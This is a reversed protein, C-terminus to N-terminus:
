TSQPNRTPAVAETPEDPSKAKQPPHILLGVNEYGRGVFDRGGDCYFKRRLIEFAQNPQNPRIYNIGIPRAVLDAVQLGTLNTKKDAFVVDFPLNKNTANNGDCIRRFELELEADEKRGRCEVIVHTKLHDQAKEALFSRLADLCFGLAVHYPNSGAGESKSLRAKDVVCTILIFNSADMISGLRAMFEERVALQSLFVFPGKQKRIENEHLVVSDHGFYNFKLKEVAPIIKESYHRKHFVCFALVFVPYEADISELSHDGSEDVYVIYDSFLKEGVDESTKQEPLSEQVEFLAYQSGAVNM